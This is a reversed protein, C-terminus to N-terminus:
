LVLKGKVFNGVEDGIDDEGNEDKICLYVTGNMRDTTFYNVDNITVM